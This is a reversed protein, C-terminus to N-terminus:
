QLSLPMNPPGQEVPFGAQIWANWGGFFIRVNDYGISKLENAVIVSADCDTGDCYTVYEMEPFYQMLFDPLITSMEFYPISLAGPIHGTEYQSRSRCDIFVVTGENFSEWAEELKKDAADTKVRYDDDQGILSIGKSYTANFLFSWGSICIGILIAQIIIKKM